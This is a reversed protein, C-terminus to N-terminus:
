SRLYIWRQERDDYEACGSSRLNQWMQEAELSRQEAEGPVDPRSSVIRVAGAQSVLSLLAHIIGKHRAWAQDHRHILDIRWTDHTVPAITLEFFEDAPDPPNTRYVRITRRPDGLEPEVTEYWFSHETGNQATTSLPHLDSLM